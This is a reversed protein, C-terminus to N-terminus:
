SKGEALEIVADLVRMLKPSCFLEGFRKLKGTKLGVANQFRYSKMMMAKVDKQFLHLNLYIFDVVAKEPEAMFFRAGADGELRFGRFAAPSVHQYIFTGLPNTFRMTKRTTISTVAAVREPILDYSALATELSVYSPAYIQCALYMGGPNVKRDNENLVYYGKRLHRLLGAKAWRTLQNRVSQPAEGSQSIVLRSDILPLHQFFARFKNYNM